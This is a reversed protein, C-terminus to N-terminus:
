RWSMLWGRRGDAAGQNEPGVGARTAEWVSINKQVAAKPPATVHVRLGALAGHRKVLGRYGM